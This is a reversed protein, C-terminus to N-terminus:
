EWLQYITSCAMNFRKAISMVAGQRRGEEMKIAVLMSIVELQANRTLDKRKPHSLPAEENSADGSEM